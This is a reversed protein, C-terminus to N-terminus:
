KTKLQRYFPLESTKKYLAARQEGAMQKTLKKPRRSRFDLYQVNDAVATGAPDFTEDRVAIYENIEDRFESHISALTGDPRFCYEGALLWPSAGATTETDMAVVANDKLWVRATTSHKFQADGLSELERESAVRHWTPKAQDSADAFLLPKADTKYDSISDCYSKVEDAAAKNAPPPTQSTPATTTGGSGTQAVALAAGLLCLFLLYSARIM